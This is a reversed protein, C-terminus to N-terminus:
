ASPKERRKVAVYSEVTPFDEQLKVSTSWDKAWKEPGGTPAPTSASAVTGTESTEASIPPVTAAAATLAAVADLRGDAKIKALVAVATEGASWGKNKADAILDECGAVALTDISTIRERETKAAEARIAALDIPPAAPAAVTTSAPEPPVDEGVAALITNALTTNTM